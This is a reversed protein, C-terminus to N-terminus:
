EAAHTTLVMSKVNAYLRNDRNMNTFMIKNPHAAQSVSHKPM